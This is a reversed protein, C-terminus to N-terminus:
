KDNEQLSAVLGELLKRAADDSLNMNFHAVEFVYRGKVIFVQQDDVAQGRPSLYSAQSWVCGDGLPLTVRRLKKFNSDKRGEIERWQALMLEEEAEFFERAGAEDAFVFITSMSRKESGRVAFERGYGTIYGALAEDSRKDGLLSFGARVLLETVDETGAEMGDTAVLRDVPALVAAMDIVRVPRGPVFSAPHFIQSTYAPPHAFADRILASGGRDYLNRVFAGGRAYQFYYLSATPYSSANLVDYATGPDHREAMEVSWDYYNLRRCVESAVFVAHGEELAAYALRAEITKIKLLQRSIGFHQDDIAHALEHTVLVDLVQERSNDGRSNLSDLVELINQKVFFVQERTSSYKGLIQRADRIMNYQAQIRELPDDTKGEAKLSSDREEMMVEVLYDRDVWSVPVPSKFSFGAVSEILPTVRSVSASIDPTPAEDAASAPWVAAAMVAVVMVVVPWLLSYKKM